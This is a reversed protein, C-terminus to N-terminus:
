LYSMFVLIWSFQSESVDGGREFEEILKSTCMLCEEDETLGEFKTMEGYEEKEIGLLLYVLYM